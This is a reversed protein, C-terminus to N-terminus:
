ATDDSDDGPGAPLEVRSLSFTTEDDLTCDWKFGFVPGPQAGVISEDPKWVSLVLERLRAFGCTKRNMKLPSKRVAEAFLEVVKDWVTDDYTWTLPLGLQECFEEFEDRLLSFSVADLADDVDPSSDPDNPDHQGLRDDLLRLFEFAPEPDLKGQVAWDCILNLTTLRRREGRLELLKRTEVLAQVVDGKKSPPNTLLPVLRATNTSDM